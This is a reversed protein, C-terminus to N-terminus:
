PNAVSLKKIEGYRFCGTVHDNVMGTAQMHAYIVTPGLFKFGRKKLDKSWAVAEDTFSRYDELSEIRHTVPKGGVWKWMYDSFSGFEAAVEIFRAANNVAAAIKARNRVIGADGMLRKIDAPGYRAVKRFDFNNFARRFNERKHLVTRWSLGAQFAELVLFEFILRDDRIPVGWEEDHYKLYLPDDFTPWPCRQLEKM